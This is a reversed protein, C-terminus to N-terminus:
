HVGPIPSPCPPRAHQLEHPQLSDSVVSRSIQDSPRLIILTRKLFFYAMLPKGPPVTTFFRGALALSVLCVLEIEPDPLDRPTPFPLGSWYEQRSFEMSLPVQLGVTWLTAFPRVHSLVCACVSEVLFRNPSLFSSLFTAPHLTLM